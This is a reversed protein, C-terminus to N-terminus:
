PVEKPAEDGDEIARLRDPGARRLAQARDLVAQVDPAVLVGRGAELEVSIEHVDRWGIPVLVETFIDLPFYGYWRPEIPVVRSWTRYGDLYLTIRRRGYYDFPVDLPTVGQRVGDIRVEARAPDSSIRM